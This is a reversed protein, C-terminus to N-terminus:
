KIKLNESNCSNQMLLNKWKNNWFVKDQSGRLFNAEVGIGKLREDMQIFNLELEVHNPLLFIARMDGNIKSLEKAKVKLGVMMGLGRM